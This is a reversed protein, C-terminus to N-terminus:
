SRRAALSAGRGEKANAYRLAVQAIAVCFAALRGEGDPKLIESATRRAEAATVPFRGRLSYGYASIQAARLSTLKSHDLALLAITREAAPSNGKVTGNPRFSFHRECSAHLPSVFWAEAVDTGAKRIAGFASDRAADHPYCALMNAYDTSRLPHLSQPLIHEIHCGNPGDLAIMTYACLHCQEELLAQKVAAKPFGARGYFLNEPIAKNAAHWDLLERPQGRKRVHRM